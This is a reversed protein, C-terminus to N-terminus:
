KASGDPILTPSVTTLAELKDNIKDELAHLREKTITLTTLVADIERAQAPEGVVTQLSSQCRNVLQAITELEKERAGEVEERIRVMERRATEVESFISNARESFKELRAHTDHLLIRTSTSAKDQPALQTYAPLPSANAKSPGPQLLQAWLSSSTSPLPPHSATAGSAAAMTM